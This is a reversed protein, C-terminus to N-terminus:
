MSRASEGLSQLKNLSEKAKKNTTSFGMSEEKKKQEAEKAEKEEAKKRAVEGSEIDIAYLLNEMAGPSILKVRLAIGTYLSAKIRIAEHHRLDKDNSFVVFADQRETQVQVEENEETNNNPDVVLSSQKPISTQKQNEKSIETM